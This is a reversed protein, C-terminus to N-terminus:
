IETILLHYNPKGKLNIRGHYLRQHDWDKHFQVSLLKRPQWNIRKSGNLIVNKLVAPVTSNVESQLKRWFKKPIRIEVINCRARISMRVWSMLPSLCQNCLHIVNKLVAPVTSNVESQLKRRITWYKSQEIKLSSNTLFFISTTATNTHHNSKCNGICLKWSWMYSMHSEICGNVTNIFTNWSCQSCM